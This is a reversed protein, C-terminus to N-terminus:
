EVEIRLACAGCTPCVGIPGEQEPLHELRELMWTTQAPCACRWAILPRFALSVKAAYEINGGFFKTVFYGLVTHGEPVFLRIAAHGEARAVLRLYVPVRSLEHWLAAQAARQRIGRTDQSLEYRADYEGLEKVELLKELAARDVDLRDILLLEELEQRKKYGAKAKPTWGGKSYTHNLARPTPAPDHGSFALSAECEPKGCTRLPIGYLVRSSSLVEGCVPCNFYPNIKPPSQPNIEVGELVMAHRIAKGSVGLEKGTIELSHNAKYLEVARKRQEESLISTGKLPPPRRTRGNTGVPGLVRTIAKRITEGSLQFKKVLQVQTWGQQYLEVMEAVTEKPIYKGQVM